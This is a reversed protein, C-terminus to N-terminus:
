DRLFETTVNSKAWNCSECLLRLNDVSTPGGKSVPIVHDFHLKTDPIYSSCKQCVQADRRVVKLMIERPIYRGSRRVSKTETAGSQLLFVPCMHGFIRCNIDDAEYQNIKKWNSPETYFLEQINEWVEAQTKVGGDTFRQMIQAHYEDPPETNKEPSVTPFYEVLYGYPCYKLEWCPKCVSGEPYKAKKSM